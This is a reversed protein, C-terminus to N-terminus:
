RDQEELRRLDAPTDVDRLIGPDGTEVYLTAERFRRIAERPSAESALALLEGIVPRGVLVPHGHRGRFAPVIVAAAPQARFAEALARVTAAKVLPYDVPCFIAAAAESPVARLGCQLSSLMGRDPDPNVVFRVAAASRVGRRVAEEHHGLVAIVPECCCELAAVMRDFFTKGDLRLLAKPSGMRRGAGAALIIGAITM